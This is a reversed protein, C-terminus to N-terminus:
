LNHWHNTFIFCRMNNLLLANWTRCYILLHMKHKKINGSPYNTLMDLVIADWVVKCIHLPTLPTPHHVMKPICCTVHPM